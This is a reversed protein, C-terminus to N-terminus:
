APRVLRIWEVCYVFIDCNIRRQADDNTELDVGNMTINAESCVSKACTSGKLTSSKARMGLTISMSSEFRLFYFFEINFEIGLAFILEDLYANNSEGNIWLWKLKTLALLLEFHPIMEMVRSQNGLISDSNHSGSIVLSSLCLWQKCTKRVYRDDEM